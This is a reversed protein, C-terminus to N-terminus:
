KSESSNKLAHLWKDLSGNLKKKMMGKFIKVLWGDMSENTRVLTNGNKLSFFEWIHIASAGFGTGSWAIIKNETVEELTSHLTFGGSKWEFRTGSEILGHLKVDSIDPLWNVWSEIDAQISWVVDVPAHVEIEKSTKLVANHNIKM